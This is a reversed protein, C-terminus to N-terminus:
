DDCGAPLFGGGPIWKDLNDIKEALEKSFSELDIKSLIHGAARDKILQRVDILTATPDPIVSGLV